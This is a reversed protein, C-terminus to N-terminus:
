DLLNISENITNIVKVPNSARTIPRGIVLFNSGAKIADRPTMIRKQDDDNLNDLRIGPTVLCFDEGFEQRLKAVEMGSCVVGDLGVSKALKALLLVENEISNTIGLEVFDNSSMSTLVTVAILLPRDKSDGFKIISEYAAEMMKSGGIAHVNLMWIGLDSAVRCANAVTNPIDHFKLDLFIDFNLSRLKEILIPGAVTYLEKGIKIRCSIPDIKKCFDIAQDADSFDLSIILRSKNM